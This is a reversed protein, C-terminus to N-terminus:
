NTKKLFNYVAHSSSKALIIDVLKYGKQKLSNRYFDNAHFAILVYFLLGLSKISISNIGLSPLLTIFIQIVFYILALVWVRKYVSWLLNFFLTYWNFGEKVAIPEKKEKSNKIHITYFDM